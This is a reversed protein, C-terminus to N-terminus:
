SEDPNEVSSGTQTIDEILKRIKEGLNELNDPTCTIELNINLQFSHGSTSTIQVSSLNEAVQNIEKGTTEDHGQTPKESPELDVITYKGDQEVILEAAKLLDVVARSGTMTGQNKHQGASYAIHAHLTQEDMGQRIRISTLLNTLFDCDNVISRWHKRIEEPLNHELANALNRGQETSQKYKGGEIVKIDKLFGVNRSIITEDLATTQSVKALSADGNISSYGKIIKVIEGYSSKPLKFKEVAM